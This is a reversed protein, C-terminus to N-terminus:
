KNTEKSKNKFNRKLRTKWLAKPITYFDKGVFGIDSSRSVQALIFALSLLTEDSKEAFTSEKDKEKTLSQFV